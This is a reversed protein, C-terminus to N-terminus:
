AGALAAKYRQDENRIHHILWDSLFEFIEAAVVTRPDREYQRDLERVHEAIVRHSQRHAECDAYGAEDMLKEEVGFHYYTYRVLEGLTREIVEQAPNTRLVDFVDNLLEILRRHHEDLVAVGVSLDDTWEVVPM